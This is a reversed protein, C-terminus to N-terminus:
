SKGEETLFKDLILCAETKTKAVSCDEAVDMLRKYREELEAIRAKLDDLSQIAARVEVVRGSKCEKKATILEELLFQTVNNTITKDSM